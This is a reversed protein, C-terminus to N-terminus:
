RLGTSRRVSLSELNSGKKLKSPDGIPGSGQTDKLHSECISHQGTDSKSHLNIWIVPNLNLEPTAFQKETVGWKDTM